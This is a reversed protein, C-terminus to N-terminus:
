AQPLQSVSLSTTQKMKPYPVPPTELYTDRSWASVKDCIPKLSFSFPCQHLSLSDVQFQLALLLCPSSAATCIYCFACPILMQYKCDGVSPTTDLISRSM